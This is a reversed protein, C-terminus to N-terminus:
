GQAGQSRWYANLAGNVKVFWVILGVLFFWGLLLAWLGTTGSVPKPQGRREYLGGIESPTLFWMVFGVFFSLLAAVGGGVGTGSHQKMEEHTKYYWVITYIGFTVVALLICMGTSRIQGLPASGTAPVPAAPMSPMSSETM